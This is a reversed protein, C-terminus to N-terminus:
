FGNRRWTDNGRIDAIASVQDNEVGTFLVPEIAAGKVLFGNGTIEESIVAFTLTESKPDLAIGGYEEPISMGLAGIKALANLNEWPYTGDLYKISNKRMELDTALKRVSGVLARQDETLMFKQPNM